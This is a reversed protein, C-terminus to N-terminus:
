KGSDDLLEGKKESINLKKKLSEVQDKLDDVKRRLRCPSRIYYFHDYDNAEDSSVKSQTEDPLKRKKGPQSSVFNFDWTTVVLLLKLM